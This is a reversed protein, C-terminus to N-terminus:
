KERDNSPIIIVSSEGLPKDDSTIDKKNPIVKNSIKDLVMLYKYPDEKRIAELAKPIHEVEGGMIKTYLDKIEQTTKNPVGKKRGGAKAHNKPAGM